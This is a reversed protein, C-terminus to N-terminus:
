AAALNRAQVKMLVIEGVNTLRLRGGSWELWRLAVLKDIIHEPIDGARRMSLADAAALFSDCLADNIRTLTAAHKM